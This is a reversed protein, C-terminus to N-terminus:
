IKQGLADMGEAMQILIRHINTASVEVMPAQPCFSKFRYIMPHSVWIKMIFGAKIGKFFDDQYTQECEYFKVLPLLVRLKNVVNPNGGLIMVDSRNFRTVLAELTPEQKVEIPTEKEPRATLEAVLRENEQQQKELQESLQRVQQELSIVAGKLEKTQRNIQTRAETKVKEVEKLALREAQQAEKTKQKLTKLEKELSQIGVKDSTSYHKFFYTRNAEQQKALLYFISASLLQERLMAVLHVTRLGIKAEDSQAEAPTEDEKTEVGQDQKSLTEQIDWPSRLAELEQKLTELAVVESDILTSNEQGHTYILVLHLMIGLVERKSLPESGILDLGYMRNFTLLLEEAGTLGEYKTDVIKRNLHKVVPEDLVASYIDYLITLGKVLPHKPNSLLPVYPSDTLRNKVKLGENFYFLPHGELAEKWTEEVRKAEEEEVEFELTYILFLVNAFSAMQGASRDGKGFGIAMLADLLGSPLQKKVSRLLRYTSQSTKICVEKLGQRLEPNEFAHECLCYIMKSQFEDEILVRSFEHHHFQPYSEGKMWAMPFRRHLGELQSKAEVESILYVSLFFPLCPLDLENLKM